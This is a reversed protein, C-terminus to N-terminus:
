GMTPPLGLAKRLTAVQGFHWGEHWSLKFMGDLVDEAFGGTKEKLSATLEKDSAKELWALVAARNGEFVKKVEALSPYKKADNVPKSGGGALKDWGQPNSVGPIGVVGGIWADTMATHMMSWMAHNDAPSTQFTYKDEPYDKLIGMSIARTFKLLSAAHQRPTM